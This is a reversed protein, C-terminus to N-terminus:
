FPLLAGVPFIDALINIKGAIAYAMLEALTSQHSLRWGGMGARGPDLKCAHSGAPLQKVAM